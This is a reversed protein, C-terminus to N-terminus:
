LNYSPQPRFKSSLILEVLMNLSPLTSVLVEKNAEKLGSYIVLRTKRADTDALCVRTM